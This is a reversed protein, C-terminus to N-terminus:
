CRYCIRFWRHCILGPCCPLQSGCDENQQACSQQPPPQQQGSAAAVKAPVVLSEVAPVLVALGGVWGLKRIIARRSIPLPAISLRERLLHAKELRDLAMWVLEEDAPLGSQPLRAALETVETRGDCQEWILAATRNLSHARRRETDYVILEGGPLRRSLLGETRAEALSCRSERMIKKKEQSSQVGILIIPQYAGAGHGATL